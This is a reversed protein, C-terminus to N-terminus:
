KTESVFYALVYFAPVGSQKKPLSCSLNYVGSGNDEYNITTMYIDGFQGSNASEQHVLQGNFGRIYVWCNINATNSQDKVDVIVSSLKAGSLTAPIPCKVTAMHTTSNNYVGATTYRINSATPNYPQCLTGPYTRTQTEAHVSGSWTMGIIMMVGMLSCVVKVMSNRLTKM